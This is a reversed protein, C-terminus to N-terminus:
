RGAKYTLEDIGIVTRHIQTYLTDYDTNDIASARIPNQNQLFYRFGFRGKVPKELGRVESEFRTWETPYALAPNNAETHYERNIDLLKVNFDGTSNYDPGIHMTNKENVWLQLRALGKSYTYFIIKDGNKIIKEPSILWTSVNYIPTFSQFRFVDACAISAAVYGNYARQSSYAAQWYRQPFPVSPFQASDLTLQAQEWGPFYTVLYNPSGFNPVQAVDYWKRGVPFSNNISRWGKDYAEQYNDFSETFSQDASPPATTLSSDDKCAQLLLLAVIATFFFKCLNKYRM